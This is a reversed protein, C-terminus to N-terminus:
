RRRGEDVAPRQPLPVVHQHLESTSPVVASLVLDNSLTESMGVGAGLDSFAIMLMPVYGSQGTLM